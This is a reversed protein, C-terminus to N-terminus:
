SQSVLVAQMESWFVFFLCVRVSTGVKFCFTLASLGSRLSIKILLFV